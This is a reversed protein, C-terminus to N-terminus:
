LPPRWEEPAQSSASRSPAQLPTIHKEWEKLTDSGLNQQSKAPDQVWPAARDHHAGDESHGGMVSATHGRPSPRFSHPLVTNKPASTSSCQVSSSQEEEKKGMEQKM